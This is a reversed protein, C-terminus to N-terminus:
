DLNRDWISTVIINTSRHFQELLLPIRFLTHPEHSCIEFIYSYAKRPDTRHKPNPMIMYIWKEIAPLLKKGKKSDFNRCLLFVISISFSCLANVRKNTQKHQKQKTNKSEEGYTKLYWCKMHAEFSFRLKKIVM